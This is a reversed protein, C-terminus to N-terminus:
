EVVRFYGEAIRKGGIRLEVSYSGPLWGKGADEVGLSCTTYGLNWDSGLATQVVQRNFVSGDRNKWFAEVNYKIERGPSPHDVILEWNIFRIGSASFDNQYQREPYPLSAQGSEFFRMSVLNKRTPVIGGSSWTEGKKRDFLTVTKAHRGASIDFSAPKGKYRKGTPTKQLGYASANILKIKIGAPQTAFLLDITWIGKQGPPIIDEIKGNKVHGQYEIEFWINHYAHRPSLNRVEVWCNEAAACGIDLRIDNNPVSAVRGTEYKGSRISKGKVTAASGVTYFATLLFIVVALSVINLMKINKM